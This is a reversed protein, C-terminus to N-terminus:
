FSRIEMSYDHNKLAINFSVLTNGHELGSPFTISGFQFPLYPMWDKRNTHRFRIKLEHDFLLIEAQDEVIGPGRKRDFMQWVSSGDSLASETSTSFVFYDKLRCGYISPGNIDAIVESVPQGNKLHLLRIHNKEIQSDTAYLLGKATPFAVCARYQQDGRLVPEVKKFNDTAKWIGASAGFDGTLIWVCQQYPDPIVHHIHEITKEPFTYVIDWGDGTRKYLHVPSAKDNLFYEGFLVADEFGQINEIISFNLPRTGRAIETDLQVTQKAIDYIFIRKDFAFFVQEKYRIATHAGLRAFRSLVRSRGLVVEPWSAPIKALFKREDTKLNFSFLNNRKAVLLHRDDLTCLPKYHSFTRQNM